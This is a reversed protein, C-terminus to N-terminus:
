VVNLMERAMPALSKKVMEMIQDSKVLSICCVENNDEWTVLVLKDGPMIGARERIEKPLVMQGREDVTVMSEVRCCGASGDCEAVNKIKNLGKNKM